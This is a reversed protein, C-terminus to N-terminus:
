QSTEPGAQPATPAPQAADGSKADTAPAATVPDNQAPAFRTLNDAIEAAIRTANQADTAPWILVFGQARGDIVHAEAHGIHTDNQGILVASGRSIQREPAPVWGLATVLGTLDLMEQQGGPQSFLILAAGSGDQPGYISLAREARDFQLLHMPAPLALGTAQDRLEELGVEQRWDERRQILMQMATAADPSSRLTVVEGAIAARTKPGDKGDIPGDYHGAWRLARQIDELPPMALPTSGEAPPAGLELKGPAVAETGIESQESVFADKSVAEASRFASLWARATAEPAPGMAITFRGNKLQWMGVEPLTQRWKALAEDAKARDGLTQVRIYFGPPPAVPEPAVQPTQETTTAVPALSGPAQTAPAQTTTDQNSAAQDAPAEDPTAQDAPSQAATTSAAAAPTTAAPAASEPAAGAPAPDVPTLKRGAAAAIFSDAPVKNAGKLEALRPEATERPMPGIAIGIWGDTLPFTVVDPFEARWSEAATKAVSDGRKAEIRIVVDEALAGTALLM